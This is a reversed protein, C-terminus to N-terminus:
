LPFLTPGLPSAIDPRSDSVPLSSPIARHSDKRNTDCMIKDIIMGHYGLVGKLSMTFSSLKQRRESFLAQTMCFVLCTHKRSGTLEDSGVIERGTEASGEDLM